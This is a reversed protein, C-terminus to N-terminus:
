KKIDKWENLSIQPIRSDSCDVLPNTASPAEFVDLQMSEIGVANDCLVRALSAKKLEGIQGAILFLLLKIEITFHVYHM